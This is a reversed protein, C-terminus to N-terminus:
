RVARWGSRRLPIPMRSAPVASQLRGQTGIVRPASPAAAAIAAAGAGPLMYDVVRGVLLLVPRDADLRPVRPQGLSTRWARANRATGDRVIVVPTEASRGAALLAACIAAVQAGGMYIALTTDECAHERWADAPIDTARHATVVHLAHAGGRDTLPVGLAAACGSAATIGPVIEFAIGAAALAVIEEGLRGFVAPDGGKLRVVNRGARAHAIMTAQLAFQSAAQRMSGAGARKGVAICLAADPILALVEASVLADHLVVDAWQLARWARITLLDAAGPGAGVIRVRAHRERGIAFGADERAASHGPGPPGRRHTDCGDM